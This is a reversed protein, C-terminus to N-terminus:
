KSAHKNMYKIVDPPTGIQDYLTNPILLPKHKLGLKLIYNIVPTVYFENNTRDNAQIMNEAAEIFDSGKKFWHMGTCCLDSIVTKEATKTTFGFEDIAVFSNKPSSDTFCVSVADLDANTKIFGDLIDFIIPDYIADCDCILLSEENNIYARANLLTSVAGDTLYNIQKLIFQIGTNLFTNRLELLLQQYEPTANDRTILIFTFKQQSKIFPSLVRKIMSEGLINILPKPQSFGADVFRKGSGAMPIVLNM